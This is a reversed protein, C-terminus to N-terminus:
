RTPLGFNFPIPDIGEVRGEPRNFGSNVPPSYVKKKAKVYDDNLVDSVIENVKKLDEVGKVRKEIDKEMNFVKQQFKMWEAQKKPDLKKDAGAGTFFSQEEADVIEKLMERGLRAGDAAATKEEKGSMKAELANSLQNRLHPPSKKIALALKAFQIVEQPNEEKLLEPNLNDIMAMSGLYMTAEAEPSVPLASNIEARAAANESDSFYQSYFDDGDVVEGRAARDMFNMLDQNAYRKKARDINTYLESKVGSPLDSDDTIKRARTLDVPLGNAGNIRANIVGELEGREAQKQALEYNAPDLAGLDRLQDNVGKLQMWANLDGQNGMRILEPIQDRLNGVQKGKAAEAVQMYEVQDVEELGYGAARRDDQARQLISLDGTEIALMKAQEVTADMRKGTQQYSQAQVNITGRSSWDGFRATMTARADPTLEMQGIQKEMDSTLRQWEPLWDKENPNKQQFTAFDMQAKQMGLSAETLKTVDNARKAKESIDFLVAGAQGVAKGISANTVAPLNPTQQTQNGTNIQKPDDLIPTPFRAM